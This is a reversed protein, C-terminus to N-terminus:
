DGAVLQLSHAPAVEAVSRPLLLEVCHSGRFFGAVGGRTQSEPIERLFPQFLAALLTDFSTLATANLSIM